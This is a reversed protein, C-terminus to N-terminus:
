RLEFRGGAEFLLRVPWLLRRGVGSVALVAWTVALVPKVGPFIALNIRFSHHTRTRSSRGGTDGPSARRKREIREETSRVHRQALVFATAM